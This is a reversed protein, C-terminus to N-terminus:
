LFFPEGEMVPNAQNHTQEHKSVQLDPRRHSPEVAGGSRASTELQEVDTQGDAVSLSVSFVSLLVAALGWVAGGDIPSVAAGVCRRCLSVSLHSHSMHPCLPAVDRAWRYYHASVTHRPQHPAPLAASDGLHRQEDCRERQGFVPSRVVGASLSVPLGSEGPRVQPPLLRLFSM